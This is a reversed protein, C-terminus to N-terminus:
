SRICAKSAEPAAVMAATNSAHESTAIAIAYEVERGRPRVAAHRGNGCRVPAKMQADRLARRDREIRVDIACGAFRQRQDAGGAAALRRDQAADGAQMPGAFAADHASRVRPEVRSGADVARGLRAGGSEHELAVCQKRMQRREAIDGGRHRMPRGGFAVPPAAFQQVPDMEFAEFCAPGRFEGAALLLAHRHRARQGAIRLYQQQIFRERGHVLDRPLLEIAFQGLQTARQRQRDHQDRM